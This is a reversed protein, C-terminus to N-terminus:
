CGGPEVEEGCAIKCFLEDPDSADEIDNKRQACSDVIANLLVVGSSNDKGDEAYEADDAKDGPDGTDGEGDNHELLGHVDSTAKPVNEEYGGNAADNRDGKASPEGDSKDTDVDSIFRGATPGVRRARAIRPTAITRRRFHDAQNDEDSERAVPDCLPQLIRDM